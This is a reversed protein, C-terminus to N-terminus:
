RHPAAFVATYRSRGRMSSSNLVAIVAYMLFMECASRCFTNAFLILHTWVQISVQPCWKWCRKYTCLSKGFASRYLTNAFLILHTWIQISAWPWWERCRKYTCLLKGFASYQVPDINHINELYMDRAHVYNGLWNSPCITLRLSSLQFEM